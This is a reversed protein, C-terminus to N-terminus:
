FLCQEKMLFIIDNSSTLLNAATTSPLHAYINNLEFQRTNGTILSVEKFHTSNYKLQVNEANDRYIVSIGDLSSKNLKNLNLAAVNGGIVGISATLAVDALTLTEVDAIEKASLATIQSQLGALGDTIVNDQSINKLDLRNIENNTHVKLESTYEYNKNSSNEIFEYLPYQGSAGIFNPTFPSANM